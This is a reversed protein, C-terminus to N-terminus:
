SWIWSGVRYAIFAGVWALATMYGFLFAPWRWGGTERKVAALTSLCQASLAFFVLLSLGVAPGYRPSGDPLREQRLRERLTQSEEDTGEGAGMVVGLTAVFVERAAFAGVLGIGIRWDFGLPEIAPELAKGVQGALSGEVQIQAALAPDAGPPVPVEPFRLAAWLVVTCALIVTGAEVVFTRAKDRVSRLVTSTRPLRYPPLELILPVREGRVLTRGLVSAVVLAIITTGVYLGVMLLGEVRLGLFEQGSMM